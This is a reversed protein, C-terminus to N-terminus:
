LNFVGRVGFELWEHLATNTVDMSINTGNGSVSETGYQGLSFSVFPGLAFQPAVRIDGGVQFSAFEFGHASASASNGNASVDVNMWEYGTGLGVWPIMPAQVPLRYIGEIGLRIISGSCDIGGGCMTTSNDKVQTIGYQFSLGLTFAANFRYGAELILPVNGTFSDGLGDGPDGDIKGFPLAYGVRVALDVGARESPASEDQARVASSTSLLFLLTTSVLTAIKTKM